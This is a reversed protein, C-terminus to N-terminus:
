ACDLELPNHVEILILRDEASPFGNALPSQQGTM